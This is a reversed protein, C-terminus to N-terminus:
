LVVGNGPASGVFIESVRASLSAGAGPGEVVSLSFGDLRLERPKSDMPLTADPAMARLTGSLRAAHIADCFEM